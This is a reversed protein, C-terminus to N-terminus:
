AQHVLEGACFGMSMAVALALFCLLVIGVVRLTSM